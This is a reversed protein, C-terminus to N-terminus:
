IIGARGHEEEKMGARSPAPRGRRASSVPARDPPAVVDHHSTATCSWRWAGSPRRTVSSKWSRVVRARAQAEPGLLGAALSLLLRDGRARRMARNPSQRGANPQRAEKTARRESAHARM